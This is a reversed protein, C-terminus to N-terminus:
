KLRSDTCKLTLGDNISDNITIVNYVSLVNIDTYSHACRLNAKSGNTYCETIWSAM